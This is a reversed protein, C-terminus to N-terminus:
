GPNRVVGAKATDALVEDRVAVKETVTPLGSNACDVGRGPM